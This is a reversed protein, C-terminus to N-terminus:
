FKKPEVMIVEEKDVVVSGDPAGKRKRVYKKPTFIVPCLTDTKRKSYYAALEAAKNIVTKPFKKGSQYKIVVHSGSVDRAHLWLDEKYTHKQTLLDNNKANKGVLIEFGEFEFHKFLDIDKEEQKEKILAHEKFYKRLEKHSEIKGIQYLHISTNKIDEVKDKINEKIKEIEIKQNKSKRYYEEANKQPSANVKLKIKIKKNTYFNLLEISESRAPIVHINAMIINAIEDYRFETQIKNLREHLDQIYHETKIKKKELESIVKHREQEFSNIILYEHTYYNAAEVPDTTKYHYKGEEFLSLVPKKNVTRIFFAPHEMYDLITEIIAWKEKNTKLGETRSKVYDEIPHGFTPFLKSLAGNNNEFAEFSQDLLRDTKTIDISSDNNLQNNFLSALKDNKFLLMNSRRGYMKFMLKYGSEFEIHFSRENSHQVIDRVKLGILEKFLDVSNKKSRKFEEPFSLTTFSSTLIAKIFFEKQGSFFGLILEDKNQSFCLALEFSVLREKLVRTLQRLFYYNNHM